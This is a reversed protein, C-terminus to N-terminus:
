AFDHNTFIQDETVLKVCTMDALLGALPNTKM